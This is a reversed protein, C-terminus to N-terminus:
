RLIIRERTIIKMLQWKHRLPVMLTQCIWVFVGFTRRLESAYNKLYEFRHPMGNEKAGKSTLDNLFARQCCLAIFINESIGIRAEVNSQYEVTKNQFSVCEQFRQDCKEQLINWKPMSSYLLYDQDWM